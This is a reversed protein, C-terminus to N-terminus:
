RAREPMRSEVAARWAPSGEALKGDDRVGCGCWGSASDFLHETCVGPAPRLTRASGSGESIDPQHVGPSDALTQRSQLGGGLEAYAESVASM